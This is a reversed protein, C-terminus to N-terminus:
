LEEPLNLTIKLTPRKDYVEIEFQPDRIGAEKLQDTTEQIAANIAATLPHSPTNNNKRWLSILDGATALGREAFATGPHVDGEKTLRIRSDVRLDAHTHPVVGKSRASSTIQNLNRLIADTVEERWREVALNLIESDTDKIARQTTLVESAAKHFRGSAIVAQHTPSVTSM